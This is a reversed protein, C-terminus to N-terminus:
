EHESAPTGEAKKLLSVLFNAYQAKSIEPAEYPPEHWEISVDAALRESISDALNPTVAITRQESKLRPIGDDDFLWFQEDLAEDSLHQRPDGHAQWYARAREYLRLEVDRVSKPNEATPNLKLLLTPEDYCALTGEVVEDLTRSERQAIQQMWAVLDDRLELIMM